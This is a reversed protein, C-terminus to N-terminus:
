KRRNKNRYSYDQVGHKGKNWPEKGWSVPPKNGILKQAESMKMRTEKSVKKNLNAQRIKDKSEISLKAGLRSSAKECINFWPKLADIYFQEYVIVENRSCCAIVSFCLDDIGYKNVHCQLKVNKHKCQLLTNEHVGWRKYIDVSSGIYIREPKVKSQIKYIGCIKM